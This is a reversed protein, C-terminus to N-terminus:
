TKAAPRERSAGNTKGRSHAQLARLRAITVDRKVIEIKLESLQNHVIFLENQVFALKERLADREKHLKLSEELVTKFKTDQEIIKQQSIELTDKLYTLQHELEGLKVDQNYKEIKVANLSESYEQGLQKKEENARILQAQLTNQANDFA